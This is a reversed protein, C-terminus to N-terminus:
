EFQKADSTLRTPTGNPLTKKWLKGVAHFVISNNDPSTAIDRIMIPSFSNGDVRHSFGLAAVLSQQVTATFPIATQAGSAMDVRWLKGQAWIVVNKSDPTWNFNPYPGFIAWVEQQDHSM